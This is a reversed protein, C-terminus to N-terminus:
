DNINIIIMYNYQKALMKYLKISGMISRSM